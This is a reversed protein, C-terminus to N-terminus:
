LGRLKEPRSTNLGSSPHDVIFTFKTGRTTPWIEQGNQPPVPSSPHSDPLTDAHNKRAQHQNYNNA